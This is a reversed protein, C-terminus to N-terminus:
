PMVRSGPGLMNGFGVLAYLAIMGGIMLVQIVLFVIGVTRATQAGEEGARVGQNAQYIGAATLGVSVVQLLNCCCVFVFTSAFGGIILPWAAKM